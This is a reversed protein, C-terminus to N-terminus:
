FPLDDSPGEDWGLPGEYMEAAESGLVEAISGEGTYPLDDDMEAECAGCPADFMGDASSTKESPHRPCRRPDGYKAGEEDRAEQAALADESDFRRQENQGDNEDPDYPLYPITMSPTYGM